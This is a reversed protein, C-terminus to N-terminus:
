LNPFLKTLRIELSIVLTESARTAIAPTSANKIALGTGTAAAARVADTVPLQFLVAVHPPWDTGVEASSTVILLLM